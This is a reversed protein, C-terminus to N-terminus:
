NSPSVTRMWHNWEIESECGDIPLIDKELEEIKEIKGNLYEDIREKAFIVRNKLYGLRGDLVEFGFARCELFWRNKVSEHFADLRKIIADIDKSIIKLEERNNEKYAKRMRVGIDVKLSLLDCLKSLMDFMYGFRKSKKALEDLAIAYEKYNNAYDPKVQKDFLGLLLDQYLFYKSPNYGPWLRKKAPEDPLDLKMFEKLTLGTVAYLIGSIKEENYENEYTSIAMQALSPIVSFFSGESGDDGWSTIFVDKVKEKHCANFAEKTHAFSGEIAPAYGKWRWSGGAFIVDNPASKHCKIMNIYSEEKHHYYDWYVLKVEKPILKLTEKPFPKESYYEANDDNLRFFMDSWIMPSFHYKKCIQIVHNLHRSFMEVRNQYGYIQLHRHMGMEFSEDMGIHIDRSKFSERCFKIAYEIFEYTKEDDVLLTDVGDRLEHMPGWKLGQYMHGLTQICPVLEVGFSEGYEVFEQIDKKSYAGRLYGFYKYKELEYTDETYLLLRNNGLLAQLLIMEKVKENKLVGNRSCDVMLGNTYFQRHFSISYKNEQKKQKILTLAYFLSCPQGYIIEIDNGDKNIQLLTEDDSREYRINFNAFVSEDLYSIAVKVADQISM